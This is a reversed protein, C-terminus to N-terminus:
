GHLEHAATCRSTAATTLAGSRSQRCLRMAMRAPSNIVYTDSSSQGDPTLTDGTEVGTQDGQNIVM